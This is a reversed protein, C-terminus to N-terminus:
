VRLSTSFVFFAIIRSIFTSSCFISLVCIRLCMRLMLKVFLKCKVLRMLLNILFVILLLVRLVLLLKYSKVCTFTRSISFSTRRSLSSFVEFNVLRKIIFFVVLLLLLLLLM